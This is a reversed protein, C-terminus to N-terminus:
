YMPIILLLFPYRSTMNEKIKKKCVISFIKSLQLILLKLFNDKSNVMLYELIYLNDDFIKIYLNMSSYLFTKAREMGLINLNGEINSLFTIMNNVRPNM